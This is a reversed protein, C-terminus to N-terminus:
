KMGEPANGLEEYQPQGEVPEKGLLVREVWPVRNQDVLVTLMRKQPHVSKIVGVPFTDKEKGFSQREKQKEDLHHHYMKGLASTPANQGLPLTVTILIAGRKKPTSPEPTKMSGESKVNKPWM